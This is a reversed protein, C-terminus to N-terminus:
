CSYYVGFGLGAYIKKAPKFSRTTIVQAGCLFADEVARQCVARAIGRRRFPPLTAVFELSAVGHDNLIAATGAPEGQVSALYCTMIGQRCIAYHNVRHIIPYNDHLGLNCVDTWAAFEEGSTVRTIECVPEAEALYVPKEEPFIAMYIEEDNEHEERSLVTQPQGFVLRYIRDSFCLGWWTHTHLSKIEAIVVAAAVDDLDELTVDFISTGGQEGPKPYIMAYRPHQEFVMHAANGLQRCYYNAGRDILRMVDINQICHEQNHSKRGM